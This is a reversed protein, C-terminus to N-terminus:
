KQLPCSAFDTGQGEARSQICEAQLFLMEQHDLGPISSLGHGRGPEGKGCFFDTDMEQACAGYSGSTFGAYPELGFFITTQHPLHIFTSSKWVSPYNSNGHINGMCILWKELCRGSLLRIRSPWPGRPKTNQELPFAVLAM